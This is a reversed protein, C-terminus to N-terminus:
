GTRRIADVTVGIASPVAADKWYLSLTQASADVAIGTFGAAGRSAIQGRITEAARDLPVQRLMLVIDPTLPGPPGAPQPQPGGQALAPGPPGLVGVVTVIAVCALVTGLRRRSAMPAGTGVM